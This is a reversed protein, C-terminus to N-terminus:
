GDDEDAQWEQLYDDTYAYETGMIPEPKLLVYGIKGINCELSRFFANEIIDTYEIIDTDQQIKESSEKAGEITNDVILITDEINVTGTSRWIEETLISESMVFETLYGVPTFTECVASEWEQPFHEIK